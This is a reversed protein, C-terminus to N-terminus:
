LIHMGVLVDGLGDAGQFQILGSAPFAVQINGPIEPLHHDPGMFVAYAAHALCFHEMLRAVNGVVHRILGRFAAGAIVQHTQGKAQKSSQRVATLHIIIFIDKVVMDQRRGAM